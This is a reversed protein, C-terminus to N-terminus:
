MDKRHQSESWACEDPNNVYKNYESEVINVVRAADEPINFKLQVSNTFLYREGIRTKFLTARYYGKNKHVNPNIKHVARYERSMQRSMNIKAKSPPHKDHLEKIMQVIKEHNKCMFVRLKNRPSLNNNNGKSHLLRKLCAEPDGGVDKEEDSSDPDDRSTAKKKKKTTTKLRPQSEEESESESVEESESESESVIKKEVYEDIKYNVPRINSRRPRKILKPTDPRPYKCKRSTSPAEEEEEEESESEGDSDGDSSTVSSDEHRLQEDEDHSIDTIHIIPTTVSEPTAVSSNEITTTTTTTTAFLPANIVRNLDALATAHLQKYSTLEVELKSICSAIRTCESRYRVVKEFLGEQDVPDMKRSHQSCVRNTHAYAYVCVCVCSNHVKLPIEFERVYVCVCM